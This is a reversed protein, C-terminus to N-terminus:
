RCRPLSYRRSPSIRAAARAQTRVSHGAALGMQFAGPSRVHVDSIASRRATTEAHRLLRCANVMVWARTAHIESAIRDDGAITRGERGGVRPTAVGDAGQIGQPRQQRRRAQRLLAHPRPGIDILDRALIGYFAMAKRTDRYGLALRAATHAADVFRREYERRYPEAWEYPENGLFDGRYIALARDYEVLAEAGDLREARRLHADFADAEARFMGSRLHYRQASSVFPQVDAAPM